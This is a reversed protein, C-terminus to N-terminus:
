KLTFEELEKVGGFAIRDPVDTSDLYLMRSPYLTFNGYRSNIEDVAKSLSSKKIKDEFISLQLTTIKSLGFCSVALERVPLSFPSTKLIGLARKYIDSSLFAREDFSESRHWFVGNRYSVMISVGRASFGSRRLRFSAKEVLKSLIPSLEDLSVFPRPLAYSNDFSKTQWEIGDIEWGRLRLYWYYSLTSKFAGKLTQYSANYFDLVSSIGVQNLRRANGEKIYPLDCLGFSSYVSLANDKNIEDLGDPKNIGSAVKALYRNPAIGISVRIWEGIEDKIRRKIEKAVSYVSNGELVPYGDLNLVFEDISRPTFDNTYDSIISRLALHVFRYKDPDPTVVIVNPYISKADKVRMGVKIGMSKAEVSGAIVCGGPSNYAAVVLPKGRFYFNAQQEITAFCSNLDIHMVRSPTPNFDLENM